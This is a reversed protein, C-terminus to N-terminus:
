WSDQSGSIFPDTPAPPATDFLDQATEYTEDLFEIASPLVWDRSAVFVILLVIVLGLLNAVRPSMVRYLRRRLTDFVMQFLTGILFLLIFVGLGIALVVLAAGSELLEMNVRARVSNQWETTMSLCYLLLGLSAALVAARAILAFKGKPEPIQLGRWLALLFRGIMYGLAMVLGALVGQLSFARPIM